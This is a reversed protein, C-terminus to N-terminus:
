NLIKTNPFSLLTSKHIMTVEDKRGYRTWLCGNVAQTPHKAHQLGKRNWQAIIKSLYSALEPTHVMVFSGDLMGFAIWEVNSRAWGISGNVTTWECWNYEDQLPCLTGDKNKRCIRKPAKVDVSSRGSPTTIFCDIHEHINQQRSALQFTWGKSICLNRFRLEASEGDKQNEKTKDYFHCPVHPKQYLRHM